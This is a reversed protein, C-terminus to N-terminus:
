GALVDVRGCSFQVFESATWQSEALQVFNHMAFLIPLDDNGFCPLPCPELPHTGGVDIDVCFRPTKIDLTQLSTVSVCIHVYMCVYACAHMYIYICM